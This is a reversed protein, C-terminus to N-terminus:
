AQPDGFSMRGLLEAIQEFRADVTNEVVGADSELRVGGAALAPDGKVRWPGLGQHAKKAQELLEAVAPEDEPHVVVTFGARTDMLDIAQELLNALIDRRNESLETHLTKSVALHLLAAFEQRHREWLTAREHELEQLLGSLTGGMGALHAECAESAQALGQQFGDERAKAREQEADVMAQELIERAKAQAKARVRAWFELETKEDLPQTKTGEIEHVTMESPGTDTLGMVVRANGPLLGSEQPEDSSSM